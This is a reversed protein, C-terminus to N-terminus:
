GFHFEPVLKRFTHKVDDFTLSPSEDFLSEIWIYLARHDSYSCDDGLYKALHYENPIGYEHILQILIRRIEQDKFM